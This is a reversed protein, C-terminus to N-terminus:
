RRFTTKMSDTTESMESFNKKYAGSMRRSPAPRSRERKVSFSDEEMIPQLLEADFQEIEEEGLKDVSKALAIAHTTYFGQSELEAFRTNKMEETMDISDQRTKGAEVVVNMLKRDTCLQKEWPDYYVGDVYPMHIVDDREEDSMKSDYLFEKSSLEQGIGRVGSSLIQKGQAALKARLAQYMKPTIVSARISRVLESKTSVEFVRLECESIGIKEADITLVIDGM